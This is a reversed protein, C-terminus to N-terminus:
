VWTYELGSVFMLVGSIDPTMDAIGPFSSTNGVSGSLGKTNTSGVGEAGARRRAFADRALKASYSETAGPSRAGGASKSPTSFPLELPRCNETTRQGQKGALEATQISTEAYSGDFETSAAYEAGGTSTARLVASPCSWARWGQATKARM